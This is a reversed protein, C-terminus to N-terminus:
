YFRSYIRDHSKQFRLHGATFDDHIAKPVDLRISRPLVPVCRQVDPQYIHHYLVGSELMFQLLQRRLCANPSRSAGSLQDM